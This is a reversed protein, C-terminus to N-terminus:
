KNGETKDGAALDDYFKHSIRYNIRMMVFTQRWNWCQMPIIKGFVYRCLRRM